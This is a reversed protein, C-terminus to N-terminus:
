ESPKGVNKPSTTLQNRFSFARHQKAATQIPNKKELQPFPATICCLASVRGTAHHHTTAVRQRTPWTTVSTLCHPSPAEKCGTLQESGDHLVGTHKVNNIFYSLRHVCCTGGVLSKKTLSLYSNCKYRHSLHTYTFAKLILMLHPQVSKMPATPGYHPSVTWEFKLQMAQEKGFLNQKIYSTIKIAEEGGGWWVEWSRETFTDVHYFFNWLCLYCAKQTSMHM